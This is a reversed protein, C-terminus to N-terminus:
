GWFPFLLSFRIALNGSLNGPIKKKTETRKNGRTRGVSDRPCTQETHSFYRCMAYMYLKVQEAPRTLADVPNLWRGSGSTCKPLKEISIGAHTYLHPHTHTPTHSQGINEPQCSSHCALATVLPFHSFHYFHSVLLSSHSNCSCFTGLAPM